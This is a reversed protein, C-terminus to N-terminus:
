RRLLRPRRVRVDAHDAVARAALVELRLLLLVELEERRAEDVERFLEAVPGEEEAGLRHVAIKGHKVHEVIGAGELRGREVRMRIHHGKHVSHGLQIAPVSGFSRIMDTVRRWAPVQESTWLGSCRYTKRGRAEVASEEVFSIGAGGMALRGMHVLHWDVPAGDDSAYQCMPAVVIRNKAVLGRQTFPQFLLPANDPSSM